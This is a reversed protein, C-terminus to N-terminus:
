QPCVYTVHVRNIMIMIKYHVKECDDEVISLVVNFV